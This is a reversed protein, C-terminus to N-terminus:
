EHGAQCQRSQFFFKKRAPDANTDSLMQTGIDLRDAIFRVESVIKPEVQDINKCQRDEKFVSECVSSDHVFAVLYFENAIEDAVDFVAISSAMSHASRSRDSTTSGIASFILKV